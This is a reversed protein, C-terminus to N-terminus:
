LRDPLLADRPQGIMAASTRGFMREAAPNFLVIRQREDVTVIADMASHVIGALRADSEHREREAARLETVDIGTGIVRAIAGGADRVATNSWAIRRRGGTKTLWDNEHLNARGTDRLERFVVEVDALQDDPVLRFVPQGILEAAAFGTARECAANFSVIRAERDLVIILMSAVGVIAATTEVDLPDFPESATRPRQSM